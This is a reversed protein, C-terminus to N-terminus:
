LRALPFVVIAVLFAAGAVLTTLLAKFRLRPLAPAGPDQGPVVREPDAETANGLPLVAFLFTWWLVFYLALAGFVTLAFGKVAVAVAAAVLAAIAMLTLATSRSVRALLDRM